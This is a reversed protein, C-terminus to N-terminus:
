PIYILSFLNLAQERECIFGEYEGSWIIIYPYSIQVRVGKMNGVEYEGSNKYLWIFNKAGYSEVMYFIMHLNSRWIGRWIIGVVAVVVVVVVAVVAVIALYRQFVM